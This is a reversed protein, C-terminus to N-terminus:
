THPPASFIPLDLAIPTLVPMTLFLGYILGSPAM